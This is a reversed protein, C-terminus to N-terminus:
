CQCPLCPADQSFRFAMHRFSPHRDNPTQHFHVNPRVSAARIPCASRSSFRTPMAKIEDYCFNFPSFQCHFEKDILQKAAGNRNHHHQEQRQDPPKDGGPFFLVEKRSDPQFLNLGFLFPREQQPKESRSRCAPPEMRGLRAIWASLLRIAPIYAANATCHICFREKKGSSMVICM